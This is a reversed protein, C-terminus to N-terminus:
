ITDIIAPSIDEYRIPEDLIRNVGSNYLEVKKDYTISSAIVIMKYIEQGNILELLRRFYYINHDVYFVNYALIASEFRADDLAMNHNFISVDTFGKNTLLLYLHTSTISNQHVILVRKIGLPKSIKSYESLLYRRINNFENIMDYMPAITPPLLKAKYVTRIQELNGRTDIYMLKVGTSNFRNYAATILETVFQSKNIDNSDGIIIIMFYKIKSRKIFASLSINYKKSFARNRRTPAFPPLTEHSDNLERPSNNRPQLHPSINSTNNIAPNRKSKSKECFLQSIVYRNDVEPQDNTEDSTSIYDTDEAVIDDYNISNSYLASERHLKLNPSSQPSDGGSKTELARHRSTSTSILHPITIPQNSLNQSSQSEASLKLNFIDLETESKDNESKSSSLSINQTKKLNSTNSRKISMKVSLKNLIKNVVETTNASYKKIFSDDSDATNNGSSEGGNSKSIDKIRNKRNKNMDKKESRKEQYKPKIHRRKVINVARWYDKIDTIPVYKCSFNDSSLRNTFINDISKNFGLVLISARHRTSDIPPSDANKLKYYESISKLKNASESNNQLNIVPYSVSVGRSTASITGALYNVLAYLINPEAITNRISSVFRGFDEEECKYGDYTINCFLIDVVILTDSHLHVKVESINILLKHKYYIILYTYLLYYLSHLINSIDIMYECSDSQTTHDCQFTINRTNFKLDIATINEILFHMVSDRIKSITLNKTNNLFVYPTKTIRLIDKIMYLMKNIESINLVADNFLSKNDPIIHQLDVSITEFSSELIGILYDNIFVKSRLKDHCGEIYHILRSREICIGLYIEKIEIEFRLLKEYIDMASGLSPKYALKMKFIRPTETCRSYINFIISAGSKIEAGEASYQKDILETINFLYEPAVNARVIDVDSESPNQYEEAISISREIHSMDTDIQREDIMRYIVTKKDFEYLYVVLNTLDIERNFIAIAERLKKYIM